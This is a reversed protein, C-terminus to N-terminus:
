TSISQVHVLTLQSFLNVPTYPPCLAPQPCPLLSKSEIMSPRSHCTPTLDPESFWPFCSLATISHPHLMYGVLRFVPRTITYLTSLCQLHLLWHPMKITNQFLVYVLSVLPVPTRLAVSDILFSKLYHVLEKGHYYLTWAGKGSM